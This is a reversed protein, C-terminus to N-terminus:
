SDPYADPAPSGFVLPYDAPNTTRSFLAYPPNPTLPLRRGNIHINELTHALFVRHPESSGQKARLRPAIRYELSPLHIIFYVRSDGSM